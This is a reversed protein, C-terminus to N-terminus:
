IPDARMTDSSRAADGIRRCRRRPVPSTPTSFSPAAARDRSGTIVTKQLCISYVLKKFAGSARTPAKLKRRYSRMRRSLRVHELLKEDNKAEEACLWDKSLFDLKEEFTGDRLVERPLRLLMSTFKARNQEASWWPNADVWNAEEASRIGHEAVERKLSKVILRCFVATSLPVGNKDEYQELMPLEVHYWHAMCQEPTRHPLWKQVQKWPVDSTPALQGTLKLVARNLTRREMNSFRGKTSKNCINKWKDKCQEESAGMRSAIEKWSPRGNSAVVEDIFMNTKEESWAGHSGHLLRRIRKCQSQVSRREMGSLVAIRSPPSEM